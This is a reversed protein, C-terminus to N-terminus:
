GLPQLAKWLDTCGWILISGGNAQVTPVICSPDMTELPDRRVRIRGGNQLLGFRAEDSWMVNELHEFTWDTNNKAFQLRKKRNIASVLPKRTPRCSSLEIGKLGRASQTNIHGQYKETLVAVTTVLNTAGFYQSWNDGCVINVDTSSSNTDRWRFLVQYKILDSQVLEHVSVLM